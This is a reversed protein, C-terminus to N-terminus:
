LMQGHSVEMPAPVLFVSKLTDGSPGTAKQADSLESANTNFLPSPGAIMCLIDDDRCLCLLRSFWAAKYNASVNNKGCQLNNEFKFFTYRSSSM